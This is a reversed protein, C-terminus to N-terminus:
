ACSVLVEEATRVIGKEPDTGELAWLALADTVSDVLSENGERREIENALFVYVAPSRVHASSTILRTAGIQRLYDTYHRLHENFAGMTNADDNVHLAIYDGDRIAITVDLEDTLTREVRDSYKVRQSTLYVLRKPVRGFERLRAVTRRIKSAADIEVSAQYFVDAQSGDEFITGDRADAGGDRVGGAPVFNAGALAGYFANAFREFPFGEVKDLAVRVVDEPIRESM